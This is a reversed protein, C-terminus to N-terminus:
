TLKNISEIWNAKYKRETQTNFNIITIVYIMSHDLNVYKTHVRKVNRDEYVTDIIHTAEFIEQPPTSDDSLELSCVQQVNLRMMHCKPAPWARRLGTISESLM